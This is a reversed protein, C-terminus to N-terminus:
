LDMFNPKRKQRKSPDSAGLMSEFDFFDDNSFAGPGMGPMMEDLFKQKLMPMLQELQDRPMEKGLTQRIMNEFMQELQAPMLKDISSVTPMLSQIEQGERYFDEVRFAQLAPADQLQRALEFGQERLQQYVLCGATFTTAKALLLLPHEPERSLAKDIFSRLNTTQGFWRVQLQLQALANSPQPQADLYPKLFVQLKAPNNEKVASVILHMVRAPPVTPILEFLQQQYRTVLAAIGKDRKSLVAICLAIVQLTQAQAIPELGKLLQSWAAIAQEHHFSIKGTATPKGHAADRFIQCAALLPDPSKAPPILEQFLDYSGNSLATIWSEIDIEADVNLNGFRQGYRKRMALAEDKRDNELLIDQLGDYVDESQCGQELAQTLLTIAKTPDEDESQILGKRGMVEPSTPCLRDAQQIAGFAARPRELALWADGLLCHAHALTRKLREEPWAAPDRKAEQEIWKILRTIVRQEEQHEETERLVHSWNVLLQPDLNKERLLPEWLHTACGLEGQAMAQQGAMALITSRQATLAALRPSAPSMELVAHGADHFNGEAMLAVAALGRFMEQAMRDDPTIFARRPDGIAAQQWLILKQLAPHSTYKPRTFMGASGGWGLKAGADDWRAMQQYTYALWADTSDGPTLPAKKLKGFAALATSPDGSQLALVGKVWHLQAASFRKAQTQILTEVQARDAKLLLLKLYCIGDEKALTKADFATRILALAADLRNQGLLAKALWYYASPHDLKLAQRFSNEASKFERKELEHQGRLQWIEAETPTIQVNPQSRQLKKLEDIAQRYKKQAVLNQLQSQSM